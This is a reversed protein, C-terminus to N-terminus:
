VKGTRQNAPNSTILLYWEGEGKKPVNVSNFWKRKNRHPIYTDTFTTFVARLQLSQSTLLVYQFFDAITAYDMMQCPFDTIKFGNNLWKDIIFKLHSELYAARTSYGLELALQTLVQDVYFLLHLLDTM